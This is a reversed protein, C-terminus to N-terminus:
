FEAGDEFGVAGALEAADGVGCEGRLLDGLTLIYM